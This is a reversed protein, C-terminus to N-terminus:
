RPEMVLLTSTATAILAGAADVGEASTFAIRRGGKIVRGTFRLTGSGLTVPRLYSVNIDVTTYAWGAQLTSHVACGTVTDLLTCMIGGHVAGIPNYHSEHPDVTFTVVGPEIETLQMGMLQAIPPAPFVGDRIGTLYDLGSLTAAAALAPKPDNWTIELSRQEGWGPREDSM